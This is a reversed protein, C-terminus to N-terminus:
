PSNLWGNERFIRLSPKQMGGWPSVASTGAIVKAAPWIQQAKNADKAALNNGIFNLHSLRPSQSLVSCDKSQIVTEELTLNSLSKLQALQSLGEVTVKPSIISLAELKSDPSILRISDDDFGDGVLGLACLQPLKTLATLRRPDTNGLSTLTVGLYKLKPLDALEGINEPINATHLGFNVVSDLPMLDPLRNMPRNTTLSVNRIAGHFHAGFLSRFWDFKRLDRDIDLQGFQALEELAQQQLSCRRLDRAV